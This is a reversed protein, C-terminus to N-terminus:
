ACRCQVVGRGAPPCLQHALFLRGHARSAAGPGASGARTEVSRGARGVRTGVPVAGHTTTLSLAGATAHDCRLEHHGLEDWRRACLADEGDGDTARSSSRGLQSANARCWRHSTAIRHLIVDVDAHLTGRVGASVGLADHVHVAYLYHLWHKRIGLELLAAKYAGFRESIQAFTAATQPPAFFGWDNVFYSLDEALAFADRQGGYSTYTSLRCLSTVRRQESGGCQAGHETRGWRTLDPHSGFGGLPSVNPDTECCFSFFLVQAVPMAAWRLPAFWLLDYRLAAFLEVPRAKTAALAAALAKRLSLAASAAASLDKHRQDHSSWRPTFLADILQGLNPNWSHCFFSHTTLPNAALVHVRLSEHAARVVERSGRVDASSPRSSGSIAGFLVFAVSSRPTMSLWPWGESSQSTGRAARGRGMARPAASRGTAARRWRASSLKLRNRMTRNAAPEPPSVRPRKASADDRMGAGSVFGRPFAETRECRHHWFCQRELLSISVYRCRACEACAALCQHSARAWSDKWYVTPSPLQLLQGHEATSCDGRTNDATPIRQSCRGEVARAVLWRTASALRRPPCSVDDDLYGRCSPQVMTTSRDSRVASKRKWGSSAFRLGSPPLLVCCPARLLRGSVHCFEM